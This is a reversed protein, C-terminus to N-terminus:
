GSSLAPERAPNTRSCTRGSCLPLGSVTALLGPCGELFVLEDSGGGVAEFPGSLVALRDEDVAPNQQRRNEDGDDTHHDVVAARLGCGYGEACGHLGVLRRQRLGALGHRGPHRGVGGSRLPGLGRASKELGDGVLVAHRGVALVRAVEGAEGVDLRALVLLGFLRQLVDGASPVVIEGGQGLEGEGLEVAVGPAIGLGDVEVVLEAGLWGSRNGIAQGAEAQRGRGTQPCPPRRWSSRRSGSPCPGFPAAPM